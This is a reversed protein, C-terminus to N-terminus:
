AIEEDNDEKHSNVDRMVSGIIKIDREPGNDFEEAYVAGLEKVGEAKKRARWDRLKTFGVLILAGTGFFILAALGIDKANETVPYKASTPTEPESDQPPSPSDPIHSISLIHPKLTSIQPAPVGQSCGRNVAARVLDIKM